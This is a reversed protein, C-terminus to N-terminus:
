DAVPRLRYAALRPSLRNSVHEIAIESSSAGSVLPAKTQDELLPSLPALRIPRGGVGSTRTSLSRRLECSAFTAEGLTADFDGRVEFRDDDIALRCRDRPKAPILCAVVTRGSRIAVAERM